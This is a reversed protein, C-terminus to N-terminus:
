GAGTMARVTSSWANLTARDPAVDAQTRPVRATVTTGEGPASVVAFAGGLREVRERM